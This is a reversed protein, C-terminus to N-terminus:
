LLFLKEKPRSCATYLIRRRDELNPNVCIDSAIVFANTYTSGQAKHATIAYNYKVEAFTEKTKYFKKWAKIKAFKDSCTKALAALNECAKNFKKLNKPEKDIIKVTNTGTDGKVVVNHYKINELEILMEADEIKLVTLDENTNIIVEKGEIVPKDAILKEGVILPKADAGFLFKRIIANFANITSNRWAVVKCYDCDEEFEKSKFYKELEKRVSVNDNLYYVGHGNTDEKVFEERNISDFKGDRIQQTIQIIPNESAQRIIKTLSFKEIYYHAREGDKFPIAMTQNIPPIQESDGVFILKCNKTNQDIIESFLNDDIMSAEDIIVLDFLGLRPKIYPDKKFSQTGDENIVPRLGLISHLTCFEVNEVANKSVGMSKLVKVAKHTPATVAINLYFHNSNDRFWDIFKTTLTTKGTGAYGTILMRHRKDHTCLEKIQEFIVQQEENLIIEKKVLGGFDDENMDM